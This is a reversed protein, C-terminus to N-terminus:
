LISHRNCTCDCRMIIYRRILYRHLIINWTFFIKKKKEVSFPNEEAKWEKIRIKYSCRQYTDFAVINYHARKFWKSLQQPGVSANKYAIAYIWNGHVFAPPEPNGMLSVCFPLPFIGHYNTNKYYIRSSPLSTCDNM